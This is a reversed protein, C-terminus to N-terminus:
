KEGVASFLAKGKPDRKICFPQTDVEMEQVLSIPPRPHAIAFEPPKDTLHCSKCAVEAPSSDAAESVMGELVHNISGDTIPLKQQMCFWFKLHHM